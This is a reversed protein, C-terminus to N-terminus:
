HQKPQQRPCVAMLSQRERLAHKRLSSLSVAELSQRSDGSHDQFGSRAKGM